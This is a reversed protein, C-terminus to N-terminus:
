AVQWFPRHQRGRPATQPWPLTHQEPLHSTGEHTGHAPSRARHRPVRDLRVPAAFAPFLPDAPRPMAKPRTPVSRSRLQLRDPGGHGGEDGGSYTRQDEESTPSPDPGGGTDRRRRATPRLGTCFSGTPVAEADTASSAHEGVGPPCVGASITPVTTCPATTQNASM